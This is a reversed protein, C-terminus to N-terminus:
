KQLNLLRFPLFYMTLNMDAGRRHFWDKITIEELDEWQSKRKFELADLGFKIRDILSLPSFKMLDLMTGFSYIKSNQFFGMKSENFILRDTLNLENILEIIDTDSKFLHHYYKEIYTDGIKFCGALGGLEPEKEFITIEFGKKALECGLTLGTIGGGIIGIKMRM